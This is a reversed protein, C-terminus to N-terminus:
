DEGDDKKPRTLDRALDALTGQDGQLRDIEANQEATLEKKRRRLEDFYETRENIEEQLAKLMKIQAAPPIGDGGAGGAGGGQNGGGPPQQGGAKPKDPKLSELLQQFRKSASRAARQTSEDTKLGQLREAAEGMNAVARKLTLAFVQAGELKEVLDGTEDKIGEQVRGLTRVGNRQAITLQGGREARTKEYDETVKAINEQREGLSKLHDAMKVLQEMALQEEADKRAQQLEDQAEDLDTLAEDEQQEANEGQDQDLDQQAQGM